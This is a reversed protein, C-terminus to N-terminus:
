LYRPDKLFRRCQVEYMAKAEKVDARVRAFLWIFPSAACFILIACFIVM